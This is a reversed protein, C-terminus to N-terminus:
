WLNTLKDWVKVSVGVIEVASNLIIDFITSTVHKIGSILYVRCRSVRYGLILVLM